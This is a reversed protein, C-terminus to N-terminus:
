AISSITQEQYMNQNAIAPVRQARRHLAAASHQLTCRQRAPNQSAGCHQLTSGFKQPIIHVAAGRQLAAQQTV